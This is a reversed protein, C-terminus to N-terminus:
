MTVDVPVSNIPVSNIPVSCRSLGARCSTPPTRPGSVTLSTRLVRAKVDATSAIVAAPARSAPVPVAVAAAAALTPAAALAAVAVLAPVAALLRAPEPPAVDVARRTTNIPIAPRRQVSTDAAAVGASQRSAL